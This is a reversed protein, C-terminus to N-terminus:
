SGLTIPGLGPLIPGTVVPPLPLLPLSTIPPLIPRPLAPTTPGGGPVPLVPTAPQVPVTTAVPGGSSPSGPGRVTTSTGPQAGPATPAATPAGPVTTVQGPTDTRPNTVPGACTAAPRPGLADATGTTIPSCGLREDLAEARGRVQELVGLSRDIRDAEAPLFPRLTTLRLSQGQSWTSLAGLATPDGAVGAATLLGSGSATQDDLSDMLTTVTVPDLQRVAAYSIPSDANGGLAAGSGRDVLAALEDVRRGAYDLHRLGREVDGFTLELHTTEGARKLSYLADGPLADRSLLLSVGSLAVVLCLAAAAAVLFRGRVDHRERRRGSLSVVEASTRATEQGGTGAMVRARMRERAPTSPSLAPALVALAALVRLEEATFGVLDAVPGETRTPALVTLAPPGGAPTTVRSWPSTSHSSHGARPGANEPQPAPKM